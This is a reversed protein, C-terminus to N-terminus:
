LSDCFVRSNLFFYKQLKYYNILMKPDPVSGM